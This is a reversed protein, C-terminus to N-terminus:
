FLCVFLFGHVLGALGDVHRRRLQEGTLGNARQQLKEDDDRTPDPPGSVPDPRERDPGAEVAAMVGHSPSLTLTPDSLPSLTLFPYSLFQLTMGPRPFAVVVVVGPPPPLAVVVV